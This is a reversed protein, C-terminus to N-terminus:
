SVLDIYEAYVWGEIETKVRYWNNKRELVTVEANQKLPRAMKEAAGSADARINLSSATVKGRAPFEDSDNSARDTELITSRLKNLPFAPGPDIKRTPAIEEHGLIYEINYKKVLLRCIKEALEIQKESYRHWYKPMSQNRHVAYVVEEEAYQAGFWSRYISGSRSLEGANDMEIGISYQNLGNRGAYSSTGAHWTSVTFPALQYIKGDRGLVLHASAKIDPDCLTDASSRADRGATYHMVITDLKIYDGSTKNTTFERDAESLYHDRTIEM